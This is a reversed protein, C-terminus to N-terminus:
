HSADPLRKLIDKNVYETGKNTNRRVRVSYQGTNVLAEARRFMDSTTTWETVRCGLLGCILTKTRDLDQTKRSSSGERNTFYGLSFTAGNATAHDYIRVIPTIVVCPDPEEAGGKGTRYNGYTGLGVNFGTLIVSYTDDPPDTLGSGASEAFADEQATLLSLAREMTNQDSM